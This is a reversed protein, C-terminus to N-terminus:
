ALEIIEAKASKEKLYALVIKYADYTSRSQIESSFCTRWQNLSTEHSVAGLHRWLHFVNFETIKNIPCHEKIAIAGKYPWVAEQYETLSELLRKNYVKVDEEEICAGNCRKLQYSFCPSGQEVGCLKPCLDHTKILKLLTRRAAAISRFAGYIGRQQMEGEEEIQERVISITLYGRSESLKFGALTKKRRLMRNYLPMHKKILESELLLASLEGATPIIEIRVVQQCLAFEKAHTYDGSFHSLVRQKLHISKGIYLPLTNKEGYFIYVGPSDPLQTIDTTLKSPISSTQYISKAVALVTSWSHLEAMTQIVDHLAAVDAEARHHQALSVNLSQAIFALNYSNQHPYLQKLLKISCLVSAQYTIGVRKFANKIFGYDFRANHAVFVCGQLEDLLESAIEDFSPANDVMENTIGTLRTIAESITRTPKILRHWTRVVGRETVIRVAIETIEDRTVHLGTTEIDVLAWQFSHTM